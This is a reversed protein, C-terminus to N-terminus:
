ILISTEFVYKLLFFTLKLFAMKKHPVVCKNSISPGFILIEETKGLYYKVRSFAEDFIVQRSQIFRSIWNEWISYINFIPMHWCIYVIDASIPKGIRTMNRQEVISPPPAISVRSIGLSILKCKGSIKVMHMKSM